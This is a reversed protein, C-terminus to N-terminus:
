SDGHRGAAKAGVGAVPVKVAVSHDAAHREREPGLVTVVDDVEDVSDTSIARSPACAVYTRSTVGDRVRRRVVQRAEGVRGGVAVGSPM